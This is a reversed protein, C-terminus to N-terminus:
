TRTREGTVASRVPGVAIVLGALASVLHLWNDAWNISLFNLPEDEDVAFLGYVFTAGYAVALLWGYLRASSLTRCLAVGVVGVLVHVINHLPNISFGLLTEDPTHAAFEDFGTVFFGVVGVVLYAAGIILALFQPWTRAPGTTTGDPAM